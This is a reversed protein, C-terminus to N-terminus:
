FVAQDSRPRKKMPQRNKPGAFTTCTLLLFRNPPSAFISKSAVTINIEICNRMILAQNLWCASPIAQVPYNTVDGALLTRNLASPKSHSCANNALLNQKGTFKNGPV